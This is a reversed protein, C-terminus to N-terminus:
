PSDKKDHLFVEELIEKHRKCFKEQNLYTDFARLASEFAPLCNDKLFYEKVTKSCNFCNDEKEQSGLLGYAFRRLWHPPSMAYHSDYTAFHGAFAFFKERLHWSGNQIKRLYFRVQKINTAYLFYGRDLTKVAYIQKGEELKKGLARIESKEHTLLFFTPEQVEELGESVVVADAFMSALGLYSENFLKQLKKDFILNGIKTRKKSTKSM